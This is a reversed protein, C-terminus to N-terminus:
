SECQKNFYGNRENYYDESHFEEYNDAEISIDLGM